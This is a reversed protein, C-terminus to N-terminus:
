RNSWAQARYAHEMMTDDFPIPEGNRVIPAAIRNSIVYHLQAPNSWQRSDRRFQIAIRIATEEDSFGLRRMVGVVDTIEREHPHVNRRALWTQIVLAAEGSVPDPTNLWRQKSFWTAALPIFKKETHDATWHANWAALGVLVGNLSDAKVARKFGTFAQQKDDKRPYEDWFAEFDPSYSDRTQKQEEGNPVKTTTAPCGPPPQTAVVGGPTVCGPDTEWVAFDFIIKFRRGGANRTDDIGLEVVEIIDFAQLVSLCTSVKQTSIGTHKAISNRSVNDERWSDTHSALWGAVRLDYPDLSRDEWRFNPVVTSGRRGRSTIASDQSM